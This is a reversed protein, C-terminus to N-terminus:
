LDNRIRRAYVACRFHPILMRLIKMRKARTNPKTVVAV